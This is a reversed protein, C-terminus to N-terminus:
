PPTTNKAPLSEATAFVIEQVRNLPLRLEGAITSQLIMTGEEVRWQKVSLSGLGNLQLRTAPPREIPAGGFDVMTVREVPLELPGLESALKLSTPTAM